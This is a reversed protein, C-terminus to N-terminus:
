NKFSPMDIVYFELCKVQNAVYLHSPYVQIQPAYFFGIKKEVSNFGGSGQIIIFIYFCNFWNEVIMYIHLIIQNDFKTIVQKHAISSFGQGQQQQQQQAQQQAEIDISQLCIFKQPLAFRRRELGPFRKIM